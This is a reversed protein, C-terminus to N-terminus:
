AYFGNYWEVFKTVGTEISTSPKFGVDNMLDNVDAYTAPVDGAQMPLFNKVATKGLNKELAGIFEMLPVPNNNGINYIKYPARNTGSDTKDNTL